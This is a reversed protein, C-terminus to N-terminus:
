SPLSLFGVPDEFLIGLKSYLGRFVPLLLSAPPAWHSLLKTGAKPGLALDQLGPISDWMLSGVHLRSSERGTDRGRKRETDRM